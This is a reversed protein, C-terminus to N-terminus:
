QAEGQVNRNDPTCAQSVSCGKKVQKIANNLRTEDIEFRRQRDLAQKKFGPHMMHHHWGECLEPVRTELVLLKANGYLKGDEETPAKQWRQGEDPETLARYKSEFAESRAYDDTSDDQLCLEPFLHKNSEAGEPARVRIARSLGVEMPIM